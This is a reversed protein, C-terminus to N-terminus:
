MGWIYGMSAAGGFGIRITSAINEPSVGGLAIVKNDILGIDHANTLEETSFQSFHNKKSISDFIPSLFVYEYNKKKFLEKISHCSTSIIKCETPVNSSHKNIHIGKLNFSNWLSFHQHLVIRNHFEKPINTLLNSVSEIDSHPKRLHFLELENKFLDTIIEAENDILIPASIVILKFNDV